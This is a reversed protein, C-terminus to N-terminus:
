LDPDSKHKKNKNNSPQEATTKRSRRIQDLVSEKGASREPPDDGKFMTYLKPCLRKQAALTEAESTRLGGWKADIDAACTIESAIDAKEGEPLPASDIADYIDANEGLKDEYAKNAIYSFGEFDASHFYGNSPMYESLAVEDAFDRIADLDALSDPDALANLYVEKGQAILWARFDIFGDDSCGNQIVSAAAWLKDKYALDRYEDYIQKYRVIDAANHKSLTELLPEYMNQWIGGTERAEDIIQWFRDKDMPPLPEAPNREQERLRISEIFELREEPTLVFERSELGTLLTQIRAAEQQFKFLDEANMPEGMTRLYAGFTIRHLEAKFDPAYRMDVALFAGEDPKIFVGGLGSAAFRCGTMGEILSVALGINELNSLDDRYNDLTPIPPINALSCVEVGLKQAHQIETKMGETIQDGCVLLVRCHPLLALGMEMGATREKPNDDSLFNTFYLHPTIPIYGADFVSRSYEKAREKNKEADGRFPSCVYAFPRESL